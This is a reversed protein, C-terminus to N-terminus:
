FLWFQLVTAFHKTQLFIEFHEHLCYWSRYNYIISTEPFWNFERDDSFLVKDKGNSTSGYFVSSPFFNDNFIPRNIHRLLMFIIKCIAALCCTALIFATLASNSKNIDWNQVIIGVLAFAIVIYPTVTYRVYKDFVFNDLFFWCVIAVLLFSLSVTSSIRESVGANYNMFVDLNIITAVTVWAAYTALGNQVLIRVLWIESAFGERKLVSGRAYLRKYSIGLCLYLSLM